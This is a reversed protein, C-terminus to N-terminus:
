NAPVTDKLAEERMVRLQSHISSNERSLARCEDNLHVIMESQESVAKRLSILEKDKEICEHTRADVLMRLESIVILIPDSYAAM